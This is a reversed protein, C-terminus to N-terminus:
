RKRPNEQVPEPLLRDLAQRTEPDGENVLRAIRAAEEVDAPDGSVLQTREVTEITARGGREVLTSYHLTVELVDGRGDVRITTGHPIM